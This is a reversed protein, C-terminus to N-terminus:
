NQQIVLISGSSSDYVVQGMAAQRAAEEREKAKMRGAFRTPLAVVLFSDLSKRWVPLSMHNYKIGDAAINTVDEWGEQGEISIAPSIDFRHGIWRITNPKWSHDGVFCTFAMLAEGLSAERGSNGICGEGRVYQKTVLNRLIPKKQEYTLNPPQQLMLQVNKLLTLSRGDRKRFMIDKARDVFKGPIDFIKPATKPLRLHKSVISKIETTEINALTTIGKSWWEAEEEPTGVDEEIGRALDSAFVVRDGAWKGADGALMKQMDTCLM